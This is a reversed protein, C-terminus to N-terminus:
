WRVDMSRVKFMGNSELLDDNYRTCCSSVWIIVQVIIEVAYLLIYAWSAQMANSTSYETCVLDQVVICIGIPGL